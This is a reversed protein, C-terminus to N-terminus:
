KEGTLDDLNERLVIRNNQRHKKAMRYKAFRKGIRGCLEHHNHDPDNHTLDDQGLGRSLEINYKSDEDLFPLKKRKTRSM